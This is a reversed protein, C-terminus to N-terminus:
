HDDGTTVTYVVPCASCNRGEAIRPEGVHRTSIKGAAQFCSRDEFGFPDVTKSDSQLPVLFLGQCCRHCSWGSPFNVEGHGKKHSNSNEVGFPGKFEALLRSM